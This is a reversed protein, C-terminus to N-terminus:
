WVLYLFVCIGLPIYHSAKMKMNYRKQGEEFNGKAKQYEEAMYNITKQAVRKQKELEFVDRLYLILKQKEM